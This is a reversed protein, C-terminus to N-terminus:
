APGEGAAPRGPTVADHHAPVALSVRWGGDPQPGYTLRADTLDAREQMGVLGLGGGPRDSSAPVPTTTPPGNTVSVQLVAPARADLVVECTAGPAHRIANALCEQVTRFAALQALPGVADWHEAPSGLMALSADLGAARAREVLAPVAALTEQPHEAEDPADRLLRVLSRLEDLMASTEARVQQVAAKAAEPDVDIQRGIAGTMVAIGSLHHAAIDHLERAMAARERAVAAEVRAGQERSLAEVQRARAEAAERRSGVVVGTLAALGVIAVAQVLPAGVRVLFPAGDAPQAVFTGVAVLAAALGLPLAAPRVRGGVTVAYTAVLVAVSTAGIADGLGALAAVPVGAAVVLLVLRPHTQRWALAIAQAVLVAVGTWWPGSGALPASVAAEADVGSAAGVSLLATVAVLGTAVAVAVAPLSPM